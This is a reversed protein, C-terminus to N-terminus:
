NKEGKKMKMLYEKAEESSQGKLIDMYVCFEFVTELYFTGMKQYNKDFTKWIKVNHEEEEKASNDKFQEIFEALEITHDQPNDNIKNFSYLFYEQSLKMKEKLYEKEDGELFKQIVGSEGSSENLWPITLKFIFTDLVIESKHMEPLLVNFKNLMNKFNGHNPVISWLKCDDDLNESKIIEFVIFGDKKLKKLDKSINKHEDNNYGCEKLLKTTTEPGKLLSRLIKEKNTRKKEDTENKNDTKNVM